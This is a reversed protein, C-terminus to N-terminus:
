FAWFLPFFIWFFFDKPCKWYFMMKSKKTSFLKKTFKSRLSKIAKIAFSTDFCLFNASVWHFHNQPVMNQTKRLFYMTHTVLCPSLLSYGGVYALFIFYVISRMNCIRSFWLELRSQAFVQLYIIVGNTAYQLQCMSPGDM